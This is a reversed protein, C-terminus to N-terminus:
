RASGARWRLAGNMRVRAAPSLRRRGPDRCQRVKRSRPLLLEDLRAIQKIPRDRTIRTIARGKRPRRNAVSPQIIVARCFIRLGAVAFRDSKRLLCQRQGIAVRHNQGVGRVHEPKRTFINIRGNGQDVTAYREIRATGATPKHDTNQPVSDALGIERVLM